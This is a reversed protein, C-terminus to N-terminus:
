VRGALVILPWYIPRAQTPDGWLPALDREVLEVPDRGHAAVYRTSASWTRLYGALQALTWTQEIQLPPAEVREFPFPISAYHEDVMRREPPWYTGVTKAAFTRLVDGIGGDMRPAVYLSAAIAAGPRAVRRVEGYFRSHDFWHLAQAIMVLDITRDAIPVAEATAAVFSVGPRREAQMLQSASVDTGIVQDFDAALELTAQGNGAGCDWARERRAPLSAVFAFLARPYRPRFAAYGAAVSSFHDGSARPATM